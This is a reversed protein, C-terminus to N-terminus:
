FTTSECRYTTIGCNVQKDRINKKMHRVGCLMLELESEDFLSLLQDPVVSHLGELFLDTQERYQNCLKYQALADLYEMKNGDTVRVHRGNTVLDIVKVDQHNDGKFEEESFTLDGDMVAEVSNDLIFKVQFM